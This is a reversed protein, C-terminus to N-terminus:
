RQVILGDNPRVSRVPNENPELFRPNKLNSNVRVVPEGEGPDKRESVVPASTAAGRLAAAGAAKKSVALKAVAGTGTALGVFGLIDSPTLDNAKMITWATALTWGPLTNLIPIFEIVAGVGMTGVFAVGLFAFWCFLIVGGVFFFFFGLVIAFIWGVVPIVYISNFLAVGGDLAGAFALLAGATIMGINKNGM